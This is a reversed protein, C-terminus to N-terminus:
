KFLSYEKVTWAMASAGLVDRDAHDLSTLLLRVKGKINYFLHDEFSKRTPLFLWKGARSVGGAIIIAEPNNIAAFNAFALGLKYGARAYVEQALEDGKDCCETIEKPTINAIDRMLSPKDSEAMLDKATRILGKEAVYTELCGKLGCECQRGHDEVCTHGLEGAFGDSGYELKGNVFTGCGLGHGITVVTFDSMGHACGFTKEGLASAFSDNIVAVSMGVRDRVLAALPIVGKWPMNPSNEICGTLANASPCSIGISRIADYGGNADIFDVLVNCLHTVYENVNPYDKTAFSERSLINGRLDVVACTTSTLSIDVGIVKTKIITQIM